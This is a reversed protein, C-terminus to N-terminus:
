FDTRGTERAKAESPAKKGNPVLVVTSRNNPVLYKLAVRKIDEPRVALYKQYDKQFRTADGLIMQVTGLTQALGFPTRINDIFEVLLQRVATRIEEETVSSQQVEGILEDLLDEAVKTKLGAKMTAGIIFLGPFAPTFALGSVGLVVGKAEVLLRHARSHTGRFLINSLVDLAYSDDEAARSIHYAQKFEESAVSDFLRYRRESLQDPEPPFDRRPAPRSPIGGYAAKIKSFAEDADFDGVMVIAVNSPQYNARFFDNLHEVTIKRLDQPVGITPWRYPHQLYALQWLVETMKGSSSDDTRLRREEFVVHKEIELLEPTIKLNALRDSEMDIVRDLLNPTFNQYFATYDRTTFANVEAGKTELQEFFQKPGYKETGKYMLHEFLHAIGTAGPPDDVSGARVWTQYSIMPVTHDEVMIVRLGNSLKKQIIDFRIGLPANQGFRCGLPGSSVLGTALAVAVFGGLFVRHRKLSVFDLRKKSVM